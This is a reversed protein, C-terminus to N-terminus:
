WAFDKNAKAERLNWVEGGVRKFNEVGYASSEPAEM